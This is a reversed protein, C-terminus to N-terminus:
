CMLTSMKDWLIGGFSKKRILVAKFKNVIIKRTTSKLSPRLVANKILCTDVLLKYIEMNQGYKEM